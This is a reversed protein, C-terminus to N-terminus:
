GKKAKASGNTAAHGNARVHGNTRSIENPVGNSGLWGFPNGNSFPAAVDHSADRTLNEVMFMFIFAGTATLVHWWGHFELLFGWPLGWSRKLATLESCYIFDLQWLTYGILFCAPSM